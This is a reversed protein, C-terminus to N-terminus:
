RGLLVVRSEKKENIIKYGSETAIKEAFEKIEPHLPMNEYPIRERAGGVSMVSKVEVFVPNAKDIIKAYQEPHVFNLDKSLTLRIVTKCSFNVLFSLSEMLEKWLNAKCVKRYIEENPAPLTIYLQTPEELDALVDPLTGNTVLFATMGHQKIEKILENIRPYLLPEGDLSIAVHKPNLAEQFRRKDHWEAGFGKLLEKHSEIAENLIVVPDDVPGEWIPNANGRIRWCFECNHNCFPVSPSMQICRHSEIGYFKQKYCFNEGTAHARKEGRIAHKCWTCIKVASHKSPGVFRYGIKQMKTIESQNLM